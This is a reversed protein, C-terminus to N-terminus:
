RQFTKAVPARATLASGAAASSPRCFSFRTPNHAGPVSSPEGVVDNEGHV